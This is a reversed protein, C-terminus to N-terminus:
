FRDKWRRIVGFVAAPDDGTDPERRNAAEIVTAERTRLFPNIARENGLRVPLTIRDAKRRRDVEEAWQRLARNHPEVELAFRCNDRTYEHACYVELEDGLPGLKDLSCQMQEPSGEFLRGCGASFLTDGAFLRTGDHFVIHSRTHGPTELVDFALGLEPIEARQSEGLRHDVQPMRPDQPGWVPVQQRALLEDVGGIHDAHHHTLLLACLHLGNRDLFSQVPDARGPDVIACHQEDHLAWIYNTEFAPIAEIQLPM